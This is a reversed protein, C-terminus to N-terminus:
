FMSLSLVSFYVTRVGLIIDPVFLIGEIPKAVKKGICGILDHPPFVVQRLLRRLSSRIPLCCFWLAFSRLRMGLFLRWRLIAVPFIPKFLTEVCHESNMLLTFVILFPSISLYIIM